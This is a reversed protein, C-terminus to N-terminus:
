VGVISYGADVHITEGTVGSALDSLLYAATKGAEEGKINRRLSSKNEQNEFMEAIGGVASAALTRLPGGSITNVRINKDGLEFALYRTTHELAAKAVGMVNYGPVVKEGGYYSMSIISGGDPMVDPARQGMALLSYASIELAQNWAQRTTQHFKGPQLFQRDAFAIAHVIFDISGFDSAVKNFVTNFDEDQSVNCPTLWPDEDGLEKIAGRVRREMKGKEDPLFTYICEGGAELIQKAIFWAYSRDNLVGTVIGRKGGMIGMSSGTREALPQVALSM